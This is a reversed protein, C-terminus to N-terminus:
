TKNNKIIKQKFYIILLNRNRKLKFKKKQNRKLYIILIETISFKFFFKLKKKNKSRNIFKVQNYYPIRKRLYYLNNFNILLILNRNLKLGMLKYINKITKRFDIIKKKMPFKM